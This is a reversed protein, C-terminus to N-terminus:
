LITKAVILKDLAIGRSCATYAVNKDGHLREWDFIIINGTYTAGQSKHTTSCYNCVFYTHFDDVDIEVNPLDDVDRKLTIKYEDYAIVIFEESNVIEMKNNNKYAMVPLGEYIYITKPKDDERKREFEIMMSTAQNRYYRMCEDNVRDRTKNFYCIAKNNYIEDPTINRTPLAGWVRHNYGAELYNWLLLDYRQRKTLEIKNYNALYKVIPLNFIDLKEVIRQEDEIPPLQRYDGMLMWISKPHSQKVLKLLRWLYPPIMGVEDIVFYKYKRLSDLTKKPITNNGTIHLTKHITKGMINRAAKNTFAMTITNENLKLLGSKFAEKPIYSKGTGARGEIMLGEKDIMLKVVKDWESSDNLEEVKKWNARWNWSQYHRDTKQPSTLKIHEWEASEFNGFGKQSLGVKGGLSVICDTKRFITEGGVKKSMNYLRMNSWDLLQIWIPLAIENQGKISNHGYLYLPDEETNINQLIINKKNLRNYKGEYEEKFFLHDYADESKPTECNVFCEWVLDTDTECEVVKSKQTTKGLCGIFTNVIEKGFPTEFAKDIFKKFYDKPLFKKNKTITLNSGELIQKIRDDYAKKGMAKICEEKCKASYEDINTIEDYEGEEGDDCCELEMNYHTATLIKDVVFTHKYAPQEVYRVVPLFEYKITLKIGEKIAMDIIKNEYWNSQHLLSLDNTEVYYIGTPLPKKIDQKFSYITDEEDYILFEDYPDYLCSTYHKNLDYCVAKGEEFLKEIKTQRPRAVQTRLKITEKKKKLEGTFIDKYPVDIEKEVIVEEFEEDVLEMLATNDRTAGYHQRHKIKEDMFLEYVAPNFKSTGSKWFYEGYEKKYLESMMYNPSQGWYVEGQLKCYEEIDTQLTTQPSTYYKQEGIYFRVIKSGEVQLKRPITNTEKIISMVYENGISDENSPFIPLPQEKGEEGEDKPALEFDESTWNQIQVFRDEEKKNEERVKSSMSLRKSKDDIPYLHGNAIIFMLPKVEKNVVDPRYCAITKENKDFGMMPLKFKEAFRRLQDINVGETLPEDDEDLKFLDNLNDYAMDRDKKPLFKKFGSKCAYENFLWDFVCTDQQRDWSTDGIYDYDLKLAGMRRMRVQRIGKSVFRNGGGVPLRQIKSIQAESVEVVIFPSDQELEDYMLNLQEQRIKDITARTGTITESNIGKMINNNKKYRYKFNITISQSVKQTNEIWRRFVENNVRTAFIPDNPNIPVGRQIPTFGLFRATTIPNSRRKGKIGLYDYAQKLAQKVRQSQTPRKPM